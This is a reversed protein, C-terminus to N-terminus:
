MYLCLLVTTLTPSLVLCVLSYLTYWSVLFLSLPTHLLLRLSPSSVSQFQFEVYCFELPTCCRVAFMM